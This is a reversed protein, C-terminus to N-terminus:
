QGVRVLITFLLNKNLHRPHRRSFQGRWISGRLSPESSALVHDQTPGVWQGGLDVWGGETDWYGQTISDGVFVWVKRETWGLDGGQAASGPDQSFEKAM